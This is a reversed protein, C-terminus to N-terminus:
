FHLITLRVDPSGASAGLVIWSLWVGGRRSGAKELEGGPKTRDTDKTSHVAWVASLFARGQGPASTPSGVWGWGAKELKQAEGGPQKLDTDETSAARDGATGPRSLVPLLTPNCQGCRCLSPGARCLRRVRRGAWGSGAEGLERPEGGPKKGDTDEKSAAYDGPRPPVPSLTPNCQGCGRFSPGVRCLRRVQRVGGM